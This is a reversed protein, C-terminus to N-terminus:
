FTGDSVADVYELLVITQDKAEQHYGTNDPSIDTMIIENEYTLHKLLAFRLIELENETVTLNVM